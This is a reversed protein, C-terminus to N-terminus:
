GFIEAYITCPLDHAVANNDASVIRAAGVVPIGGGAQLIQTGNVSSVDFAGATNGSITRLLFDATYFNTNDTTDGAPVAVIRAAFAPVNFVVRGGGHPLIDSFLTLRPPQNGGRRGRAVQVGLRVGQTDGSVTRFEAIVNIANAPVTIQAGNLWDIKVIQTSGGIGFEIRAVIDFFAFQIAQNGPTLYLSVTWEVPPGFEPLSLITQRNDADPAFAVETGVNGSGTWWGNSPQVVAIPQLEHVQRVPQNENTRRAMHEGDAQGPESSAPDGFQNSELAPECAGLLLLLFFLFHKM